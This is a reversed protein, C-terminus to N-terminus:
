PVLSGTFALMSMTVIGAGGFVLLVREVAPRSVALAAALLFPVTALAYREISDLNSASLALFASALGYAFLSMSGHRRLVVLLALMAIATVFHLGSGVRDGARLDGFANWISVLPNETGGRLNARDQIRLPEFFSESRDRAWWLFALLGLPAAAAACAPALWWRVSRGASSTERWVLFAEVAIPVALLVGPPRTLAAAFAWPVVRWWHRRRAADLASVACLLFLSEAYGMVLVFAPPALAAIWVARAAIRASSTEREVFRFLRVFFLLAAINAVIVVGRAGYAPTIWNVLRGLLPLLPFFRLSEHAVGDYGLRAIDAYHAADWSHLGKALTPRWPGPGVRDFIHRAVELSMVVLVRSLLWAGLAVRWASSARRDLGHRDLGRRDLGTM